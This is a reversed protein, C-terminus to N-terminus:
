LIFPKHQTTTSCLYGTPSAATHLSELGEVRESIVWTERSTVICLKALVQHKSIKNSM